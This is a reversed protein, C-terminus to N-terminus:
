HEGASSTMRKRRDRQSEIGLTNRRATVCQKSVGALKGVAEDTLLGLVGDYGALAKRPEAPPIGLLIRRARVVSPSVGLLQGVYRDSLAGVLAAFRELSPM